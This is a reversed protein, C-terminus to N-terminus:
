ERIEKFKRRETTVLIGGASPRATDTRQEHTVPWIIDPLNPIYRLIGSDGTWAGSMTGTEDEADRKTNVLDGM